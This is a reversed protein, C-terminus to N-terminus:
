WVWFRLGVLNAAILRPGASWLGMGVVPSGAFFLPLDPPHVILGLAWVLSMM